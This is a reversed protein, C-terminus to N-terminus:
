PNPAVFARLPGFNIFLVLLAPKLSSNPWTEYEENHIAIMREILLFALLICVAAFPWLVNSEYFNYVGHIYDGFIATRSSSDNESALQILKSMM